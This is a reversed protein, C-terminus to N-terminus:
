VIARSLQAPCPHCENLHPVFLLCVQSPSFTLPDLPEGESVNIKLHKCHIWPFHDLLSNPIYTMIEPTLAVRMCLIILVTPTPHNGLLIGRVNIIQRGACKGQNKTNQVAESVTQTSQTPTGRQGWTYFM